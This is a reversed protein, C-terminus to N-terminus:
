KWVVKSFKDIARTRYQAPITRAVAVNCLLRDKVIKWQLKAFDDDELLRRNLSVAAVIRDVPNDILDYSHDIIDDFMDLGLDRLHQVAGVGCLIIPLNCGLISNLVKETIMWSPATFSTETVIEVISLSYPIRLNENFNTVNDNHRGKYIDYDEHNAWLGYGHRFESFGASMINVASQQESTFEWPVTNLFSDALKDLELFSMRGSLSVNGLGYLYSLLVVRHFRKNRNLSIFNLYSNLDKDIVPLVTRYEKTHNTIDGGWPIIQINDRSIEKELCEMSTLIVFNKEPFRDAVEIIKKTGVSITDNWYDFEQWLFLQDKIGIVVNKSVPALEDFFTNFKEPDGTWIYYSEVEHSISTVLTNFLEFTFADGPPRSIINM